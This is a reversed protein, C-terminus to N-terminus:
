INKDPYQSNRDQFSIFCFPFILPKALFEVQYLNGRWAPRCNRRTHHLEYAVEQEGQKVSCFIRILFDM